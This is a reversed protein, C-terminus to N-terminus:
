PTFSVCSTLRVLGTSRIGYTTWASDGSVIVFDRTNKALKCNIRYGSSQSNEDLHSFAVCEQNELCKSGCELWSTGSHSSIVDEKAPEGIKMFYPRIRQRDPRNRPMRGKPMSAWKEVWKNICENAASSINVAAETTSFKCSRNSKKSVGRYFFSKFKQGVIAFNKVPLARHFLLTCFPRNGTLFIERM